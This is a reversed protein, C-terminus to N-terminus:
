KSVDTGPAPMNRGIWRASFFLEGARDTSEYGGVGCVGDYLVYLPEVRVLSVCVGGVGANGLLNECDTPGPALGVLARGVLGINLALRGDSGLGSDGNLFCGVRAGVDPALFRDCLTLPPRGGSPVVGLLCDNFAEVDM